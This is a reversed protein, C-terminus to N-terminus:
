FLSGLVTARSAIYDFGLITRAGAVGCRGFVAEKERSMAVHPLQAIQSSGLTFLM